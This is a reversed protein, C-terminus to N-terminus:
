LVKEGTCPQCFGFDILKLSAKEDRSSFLVNELKIDTHVFGKAHIHAVADLIQRIWRAAEAEPFHGVEKLRDFLEGGHCLEMVLSVSEEEEYANLLKAIHPHDLALYASVEDQPNLKKGKRLVKLACAQGTAHSRCSTVYGNAGNGLITDSNAAYDDSLPGRCWRPDDFVRTRDNFVGHQGVEVFDDASSYMRSAECGM